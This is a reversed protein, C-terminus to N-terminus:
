DGLPTGAWNKGILAEVMRDSGGGRRLLYYMNYLRETLYYQRQRSTGGGVTVVGRRVLRALRASARNSDIRAQEAIERTTAPKWLRALALYVRRELPPLSELHSKFYDTHDDVLDLLSEM